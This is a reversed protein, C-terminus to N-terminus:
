LFSTLNCKYGKELIHNIRRNAVDSRMIRCKNNRINSIITKVKDDGLSSSITGDPLIYLSNIDFDLDKSSFKGERFILDLVIAEKDLYSNKRFGKVPLGLELKDLLSEHEDIAKVIWHLHDIRHFSPKSKILKTLNDVILKNFISSDYYIDVDKSQFTGYRILDRICGGHIVGGSEIIARFLDVLRADPLIDYINM